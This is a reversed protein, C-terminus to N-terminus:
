KMEDFEFWCLRADSARIMAISRREKDIRFMASHLEKGTFAVSDLEEGSADIRVLRRRDAAVALLDENDDPHPGIVRSVPLDRDPLPTLTTGDVAHGGIYILPEEQLMGAFDVSNGEALEEAVSEDLWVTDLTDLAPDLRQVRADNSRSIFLAGTAAHIRMMLHGIENPDGIAPGQLDWTELVDGTDPDIEAVLDAEAHALFLTQRLPHLALSNFTLLVNRGLGPDIEVRLELDSRRYGHIVGDAQSLVWLTDRSPDVAPSFPWFTDDAQAVVGEETVRAVTNSLRGTVYFEQVDRDLALGDLFAGTTVTAVHEGDLPTVGWLESTGESNFWLTGTQTDVAGYASNKATSFEAGEIIGDADVARAVGWNPDEVGIRDLVIARDGLSIVELNEAGVNWTQPEDDGCGVTGIATEKAVIVTGDDLEAGHYAVFPLGCAGVPELSPLDHIQFAEDGVTRSFVAIQGSSLSMAGAAAEELYHLEVLEGGAAFLALVQEQAPTFGLVAVGGGPVPLVTGAHGLPEYIQTRHNTYPDFRIVSPESRTIVWITGLEDVAVDPYRLPQDAYPKVSLLEHTDLDFTAVGRSALGTNYGLRRDVDVAIEFPLTHNPILEEPGLYICRPEGSCSALWLVALHWWGARFMRHLVIAQTPTNM